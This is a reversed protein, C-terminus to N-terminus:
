LSLEGLVLAPIEAEGILQCKRGAAEQLTEPAPRTNAIVACQDCHYHSMGLVAQKVASADFSAMYGRAHVAIRRSQHELVLDVGSDGRRGTHKVAIGLLRFAEVLFKEFDRSRMTRWEQQLLMERRLQVSGLLEQRTRRDAALEQQVRRLEVRLNNAHEQASRLADAAADRSAPLEPTAPVFLLYALSAATLAAVILFAFFGVLSSGSYISVLAGAVAAALFAGISILGVNWLAISEAPRRLPIQARRIAYHAAAAPIDWRAARRDARLQAERAALEAIRQDLENWRRLHPSQESM